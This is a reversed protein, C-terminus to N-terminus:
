NDAKMTSLTWWAAVGTVSLVALGIVWKNEKSGKKSSELNIKIKDDENTTNELIFPTITPNPAEILKAREVESKNKIKEKSEAIMMKYRNEARRKDRNIKAVTVKKGGSVAKYTWPAIATWAGGTIAILVGNLITLVVQSVAAGRKTSREAAEMLEIGAAYKTPELIKNKEAFRWASDFLEDEKEVNLANMMIEKLKRKKFKFKKHFNPKLPFEIDADSAARALGRIFFRTARGRRSRRCSRLTRKIKGSSRRPSKSDKPETRARYEAEAHACEEPSPLRRDISKVQRRKM